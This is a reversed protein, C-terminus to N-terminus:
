LGFLQWLPVNQTMKFMEKRDLSLLEDPVARMLPVEVIQAQSLEGLPIQGLGEFLRWRNQLLFERNDTRLQPKFPWWCFLSLSFPVDEYVQFERIRLNARRKGLLLGGVMIDDVNEYEFATERVIRAMLLLMNREYDQFEYM